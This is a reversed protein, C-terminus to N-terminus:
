WQNRSMSTMLASSLIDSMDDLVLNLVADCARLEFLGANENDDVLDDNMFGTPIPGSKM